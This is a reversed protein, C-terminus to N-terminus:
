NNGASIQSILGRDEYVQSVIALVTQLAVREKLSYDRNLTSSMDEEKYLVVIYRYGKMDTPNAKVLFSVKNFSVFAIFEPDEVSWSRVAWHTSEYKTDAYQKSSKSEM